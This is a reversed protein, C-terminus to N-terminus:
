AAQPKPGEASARPTMGSSGGLSAAGWGLTVMPTVTRSQRGDPSTVDVNISQSGEPLAVRLSFTGDKRVSVPQGQIAVNSKPETAGHIVLEADVRAWFGKVSSGRAAGLIGYSSGPGSFLRPVLQWAPGGGSGGTLASGTTAGFLQWYLEDTTIWAEDIVDSPGFPPATVKNSRALKLFRGSHTLLGIEVVFSRGPANTHVYWNMALGSLAIDFSRAPGQSPSGEDTVDYVRLVTQLGAVEQPLLQSRAARETQPQIEWYAYIWWPDKVMLAIRDDGYGSPISFRAEIEPQPEYVHEAPPRPAPAPEAAPVLPAGATTAATLDAQRRGATPRGARRQTRRRSSPAPSGPRPPAAAQARSRVSPGRAPKRVVSTRRVPTFPQTRATTPRADPKKAASRRSKAIAKRAARVGAAVWDTLRRPASRRSTKSASSARPAPVRHSRKAASKQGASSRAAGKRSTVKRAM